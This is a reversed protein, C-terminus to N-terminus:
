NPKSLLTDRISSHITQHYYARIFLHLPLFLAVICHMNAHDSCIKSISSNWTGQNCLGEWIRRITSERTIRTIQVPHRLSQSTNQWMWCIIRCLMRLAVRKWRTYHIVPTICYTDPNLFLRVSQRITSSKIIHIMYFFATAM